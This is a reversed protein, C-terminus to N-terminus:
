FTSLGLDILPVPSAGMELKFALISDVVLESQPDISTGLDLYRIGNQRSFDIMSLIIQETVGPIRNSSAYIPLRMSNGMQYGIAGGIVEGHNSKIELFVVRLQPISFLQLARSAPLSSVLGMKSYSDELYSAVQSIGSVENMFNSTFELKQAKGFARLRRSSIKVESDVDIAVTSRARTIRGNASLWAGLQVNSTETVTPPLCKVELSVNANSFEELIKRCIQQLDRPGIDQLIVLGAAFCNPHSIYVNEDQRGPFLAVIEGDVEVFKFTSLGGYPAFFDSLFIEYGSLRSIQTDWVHEDNDVSSVKIM